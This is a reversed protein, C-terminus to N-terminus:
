FVHEANKIFSLLMEQTVLPDCSVKGVTPLHDAAAAAAAAATEAGIAAVFTTGGVDMEM